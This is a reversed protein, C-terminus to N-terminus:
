ESNTYYEAVIAEKSPFYHYAGGLAVGAAKAIERMTTNELGKERFLGLATQYILTKTDKPESQGSKFMNLTYYM